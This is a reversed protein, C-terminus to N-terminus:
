KSKLWTPPPCDGTAPCPPCGGQSPDESEFGAVFATVIDSANMGGTPSTSNGSGVGAFTDFFCGVYCADSTNVGGGPCSDFCDQGREHITKEVWYWHCEANITKVITANRWYTGEDKSTFSYWHGNGTDANQLRSEKSFGMLAATNYDWYDWAEANYSPRPGMDCSHFDGACIPQDGVGPVPDRILAFCEYKCEDNSDEENCLMYTGRTQEVEVEIKRVVRNGQSEKNGCDFTSSTQCGHPLKECVPCAVPLYVDKLMFFADGAEDGLDKDALDDRCDEELVDYLTM